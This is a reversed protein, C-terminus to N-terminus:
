PKIEGESLPLKSCRYEVEAPQWFGLTLVTALAQPLSTRVRVESMVNTEGCKKAAKPDEIGGWALAHSTSKHYYQDGHNPVPVTLRHYACGPLMAGLLMVTLARMM